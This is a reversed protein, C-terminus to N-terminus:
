CWEGHNAGSDFERARYMAGDADAALAPMM